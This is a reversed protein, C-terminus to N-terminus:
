LIYSSIAWMRADDRGVNSMGSTYAAHCLYYTTESSTTITKRKTVMDQINTANADHTYAFMFSDDLVNNTATITTAIAIVGSSARTGIHRTDFGLEWGGIPVNFSFTAPNYFTGSSPSSQLSQSTSERVITWRLTNEAPFGYAHKSLSYRFDTIPYTSTDDITQGGYTTNGMFLIMKGQYDMNHIIGYKLVNNQLFRVFMGASLILSLEDPINMDYNPPNIGLIGGGPGKTITPEGKLRCWGDFEYHVNEVINRKLTKIEKRQQEYLYVQDDYTNPKLRDIDCVLHDGKYLIRMIVRKGDIVNFEDNRVVITDGARVDDINFDDNRFIKIRSEKKVEQVDSLVRAGYNTVLNDSGDSRIKEYIEYRPLTDDLVNYASDTAVDNEDLEDVYISNYFDDNTESFKISCHKGVFLNGIVNVDPVLFM